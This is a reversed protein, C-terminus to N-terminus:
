HYNLYLSCFCLTLFMIFSIFMVFNYVIKIYVTNEIRARVGGGLAEICGGM